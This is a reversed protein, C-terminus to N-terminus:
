ANGGVTNVALFADLAELRYRVNSGVKVYPLAHRKTSAWTALTQPKVGLYDAAEARSILKSSYTATAM